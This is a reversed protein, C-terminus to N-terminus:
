MKREDRVFVDRGYGALCSGWDFKNISPGIDDTTSVIILTTPVLLSPSRFPTYRHTFAALVCEGDRFLFM